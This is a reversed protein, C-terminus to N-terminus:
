HTIHLLKLVWEKLSEKEQITKESNRRSGLNFEELTWGSHELAKLHQEDDIQHMVRYNKLQEQHGDLHGHHHLINELISAYRSDTQEKRKRTWLEPNGVNQILFNRQKKLKRVIDWCLAFQLARYLTKDSHCLAMLETRDWRLCRVKTSAKATACSEVGDIVDLGAHLGSESLFNGEEVNYTPIDDRYVGITGSIVVRMYPTIDGQQFVVEGPHFTEETGIQVLKAFDKLEVLPLHTAHLTLMENSLLEAAYTEYYAKGIRYLNLAIFLAKSRNLNGLTGIFM